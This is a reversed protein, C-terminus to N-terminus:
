EIDGAVCGEPASIPNCAAPTGGPIAVMYGTGFAPNPVPYDTSVFQAGSALAADRQTTDGSRAQLTDGDARTRVVFGQAVLEQILDFDDLPDNLKVFAAEAAPPRASTFMARGRLSPHGDLYFSREEGENDLCFMVKGRSDALTPWGDQEIAERLTERTGRVDDPTILQGPPFVSRIEHDLADLEAPGIAVPIVFGFGLEPLVDDKAEVLITLPAHLPNAESWQRVQQLCEIFTDCTTDYDIDQVHLVKFGPAELEPIRLTPDGTIIELGAPSAFLGGDPDAFVDLEIQRIGQTDFQVSLPLHTYELSQALALSFEAIADFLPPAAQIHYSNHSGLVQVHNLRLLDDRPYAAPCGNLARGLGAVLNDVTVEGDGGVDAATCAALPESDLAIGVGRILEDVTVQRDGDCDVECVVLATAPAGFLALMAAGLFLGLVRTGM